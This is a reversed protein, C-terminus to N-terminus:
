LGGKVADLMTKLRDAYTHHGNIILQHACSALRRREEDHNLLWGAKEVMESITRFYLVASGEEGFIERHEGTKEALMCTGIAPVEFTRMCNGDRNARRVLCLAVKAHTLALRVTRVDAQGRTIAKTRPFRGWYSGYLGVNLGADLLATMYAARDKDAGGLFVVDSTYHHVEDTTRGEEAYFLEPDYGFPLFEVRRCGAHCLEDINARRPSFIGEYYPLADLFWQARHAPNWPDDTLYNIRPIGLDGIAMLTGSDIPALGTTILCDPRMQRCLDLVESSFQGLRAPKKGQLYWTFRRLWPSADFAKATNVLSTTHGLTHAGRCFADGINTGGSGGAILINM